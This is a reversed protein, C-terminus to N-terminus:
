VRRGVVIRGPAVHRLLRWRCATRALKTAAGVVNPFRIRPPTVLATRVFYGSSAAADEVLYAPARASPFAMYERELQIAAERAVARSRHLSAPAPLLLVVPTGAPLARLGRATRRSRWPLRAVEVAVTEPPAIVRWNDRWREASIVPARTL